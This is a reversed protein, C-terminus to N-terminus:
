HSEKAEEWNFPRFEAIKRFDAANKTIVTLGNRAASMAILADNTMRARGVQEYGYKRGIEALVEGALRWDNEVPVLLRDLRSFEREMELLAKRSKRDLAGILLEALVVVSLWLPQPRRDAARSARRLQLISTREARLATIYVTTDFLIGAM